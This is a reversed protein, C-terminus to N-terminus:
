SSALGASESHGLLAEPPRHDRDKQRATPLWWSTNPEGASPLNERLVSGFKVKVVQRQREVGNEGNDLVNSAM